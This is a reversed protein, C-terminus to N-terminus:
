AKAKALVFVTGLKKKVSLHLRCIHATNKQQTPPSLINKTIRLALEEITLNSDVFWVAQANFPM